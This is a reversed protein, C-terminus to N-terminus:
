HISHSCHSAGRVAMRCVITRRVRATVYVLVVIVVPSTGEREHRALIFVRVHPEVSSELLFLNLNLYFVFVFLM